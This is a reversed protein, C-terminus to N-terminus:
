MEIKQRALKCALRVLARWNASHFGLESVFASSMFFKATNKFNYKIFKSFLNQRTSFFIKSGFFFQQLYHTSFIRRQIQRTQISASINAARFLLGSPPVPLRALSLIQNDCPLAPEIGTRPVIIM